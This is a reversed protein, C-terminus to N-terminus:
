PITVYDSLILMKYHFRDFIMMNLKLLIKYSFPKIYKLLSIQRMPALNRQSTM